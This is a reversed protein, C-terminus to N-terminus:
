LRKDDIMLDGKMTIVAEGRLIVADDSVECDVVGGRESHQFGVVRKKNLISSWYPALVCHASGTVPDELIGEWPDFFRSVFDYKDDKATLILGTIDKMELLENGDPSFNVVEDVSELHVLFYNAVPSYLSDIRKGFLKEIVPHAYEKIPPATPFTMEILGDVRKAKLMCNMTEFKITDFDNKTFLVKAAALTGHGCLAVENKPTFWRLRYGGEIPYAFATESYNMEKAISLMTAVELPRKTILVGAPNGAFPEATFSDVVYFEM